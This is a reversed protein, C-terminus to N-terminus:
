GPLTYDVSERLVVQEVEVPGFAPTRRGKWNAGMKGDKNKTELHIALIEALMHRHKRSFKLTFQLDTRAADTHETPYTLKRKGQNWIQTFGLPLWGGYSAKALRVGMPFPRTHVYIDAENQVVPACYFKVWDEFSDCMMRDIHYLGDEDLELGEFIVRFMPPLFIDADLHAVWGDGDLAKLGENIMKGKNFDAGDEYCVESLVCKVHWYECLDRTRKDDPHTVVVMKDFNSRNTPLTWALFDSYGVSVTVCELKM